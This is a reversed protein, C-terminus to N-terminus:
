GKRINPLSRYRGEFYRKEVDESERGEFEYVSRLQTAGNMDRETLWIQDRRLLKTDMLHTDHTTFILQTNKTRKLFREILNAVIEPHLSSDLEDIGMVSFFSDGSEIIGWPLFFGFLNKTGESQEDYDFDAEGLATRHTFTTTSTLNNKNKSDKESYLLSLMNKVAVKSSDETRIATVPVDIEQLFNAVEQAFIPNEKVLNKCSMALEEMKNVVVFLGRRLWDLPFSLQNIEESSNAVAQALFLTTPNTLRTWVKHLESGGELQDSFSYVEGYEESYQREYLTVAEGGPFSVLREELIRSATASLNFQYRLKNNVFHYEFSSPASVLKKDFRFPKVPVYDAPSMGTMTRIIDLAKLLNSKGSANPGYIAAVKLLDPLKEGVVDPTFVNDRRHLRPAAVMSFTQKERFSRFNSVSFEILM